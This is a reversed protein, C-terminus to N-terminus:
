SLAGVLVIYPPFDVDLLSHCAIDVLLRSYVYHCTKGADPRIPVFQM